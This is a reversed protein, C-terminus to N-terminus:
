DTQPGLSLDTYDFETHDALSLQLLSCQCYIKYFYEKLFDNPYINQLLYNSIVLSGLLESLSM